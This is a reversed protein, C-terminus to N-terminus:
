AVLISYPRDIGLECFFYPFNKVANEWNYMERVIESMFTAEGKPGYYLITDYKTGTISRSKVIVVM